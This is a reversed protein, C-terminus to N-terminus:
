WWLVEKVRLTHERGFVISLDIKTTDLVLLDIMLRRCSHRAELLSWNKSNIADMM